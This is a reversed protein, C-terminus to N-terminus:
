SQLQELVAHTKKENHREYVEKMRLRPVSSSRGNERSEEASSSQEKVPSFDSLQIDNEIILILLYRRALEPTIKDMVETPDKKYYASAPIEVLHKVLM